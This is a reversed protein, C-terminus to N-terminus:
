ALLELLEERTISTAADAGGLAADALARKREQLLLIREEVTDAAVLRHVFVPRDQGIRHARDAAQDEVAPNWWPDLLFVHDAATLNLGTGGAKLSLLMVPPGDEAQFASVVGERDATSGDLRTFAIGAERLHPEVKDLLSTWQSFVLAKHGDAVAEDLREVLLDVKSSRDAQQGPVLGAHCAAQRLRLLAELAALVSGGAALREVVESRAAAGVADYVRREHEDLACRLVTETRPPLEAAVEAKRRRLVFPKIRARLAAAAGPEGDAIARAYREDFDKRGGLLGRNLFHLQSWLEELRNEVPTGSLCVRFDASLAFAARAIQSDPNKIAQAEDLVVTRWRRAALADADLRLIAYSTLIVDAGEDLERRAGHYVAVRLSPRFRALEAKWNHLVSTPAVVLSVPGLTCAAQLTKGLGMDDALLAGLGAQQLFSLWAVGRLQYDRLSARLDPPLAPAPLGDFDELLPRLREIGPPPPREFAECLRALDPLACAPLEGREDRAALLDAVQRGFRELWGVPLPSLGGGILPVLNEGQLWARLVAAPEARRAPEGDVRFELHFTGDGIELLPELPPAIAFAAAGPGKVEADFLRLRGAFAAADEGRFTARRGPVLGLDRELRRALRREGDPDRLPLAGGTGAAVLREGAVRARPPDGYVISPLVSLIEGEQETEVLIRPPMRVADPLRATRVDVPVRRRLSPLTESVLEHLRDPGFRLGERLEALERGTLPPDAVIRLTDACRAVGNAFVEEISPDQVVSLWLDPGRDEVVARVGVRERSVRVREGDLTVDSAGDLDDFIGALVERSFWGERRSGLAVDIKLDAATAALPPGQVRGSSLASLTTRLAEEAGDRVLVRSLLLGTDSRAFRYGVTAPRVRSVPLRAGAKRAQRVAIAAAAVHVCVDDRGPCDCAWDTGEVDLTVSRSVPETKSSVRCQIRDAAEEEGQVGGARALEVGRSWITSTCSERIAEFLEQILDAGM